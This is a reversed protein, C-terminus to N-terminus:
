DEYTLIAKFLSKLYVGLKKRLQKEFQEESLSQLNNLEKYFHKTTYLHNVTGFLTNMMLSVDIEKKFQKKRQGEQVLQKILDQNTRKVNLIAKAVPGSTHIIQERAMIRHFCQQKQFKDIYYDILTYFKDLPSLEKDQVMAEIRQRTGEARYLFIAELLKDKSGFYYSIMALNVDAAEAIDRVSTGNFGNDSFLKEAAELIKIHKDNYEVWYEKKTQPTL